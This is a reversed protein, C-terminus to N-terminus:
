HILTVNGFDVRDWIHENISYDYERLLKEFGEASFDYYSSDKNNLAAYIMQYKQALAAREMASYITDESVGIKDLANYEEIDNIFDEFNNDLFEYDENNLKVGDAEALQCFVEDHIAMMIASKRASVRIFEGDIHLNWYKNTDDPNYVLAEEEVVKEEFAVYFAVDKLTLIRENVEAASDELYESYNIKQRNSNASFSYFGLIIVIVALIITVLHKRPNKIVEGFARALRMVQRM